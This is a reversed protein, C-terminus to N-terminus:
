VLPLATVRAQVQRYLWIFAVATLGITLFTVVKKKM